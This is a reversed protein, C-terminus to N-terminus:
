KITMSGAVPSFVEAGMPLGNKDYYWEKVDALLQETKEKEVLIMICGGLGAGSLQTGLVGDRTKLYDVLEDITRTSCAYGGPQHWLQAAAVREPDESKLDATLVYLAEDHLAYDYPQGDKYVRDGDHSINMMEGLTAYDQKELLEVCKRARECEAVGYLVVSRIDYFEPPQHSKLIQRIHEHEQQPLLTFLEGPTVREPLELLIEYIRSPLVRMTEPNVDRLYRLRDRYQPFKERILMLGFEYSAVKQNFQDKAGASKKAQVFSNAVVLRCSEPFRVAKEIRFPFFGLHTIMGKQGCKMAAHDGAGGRSGVFWEGEGCLNIFTQPQLDMSNLGIAAEMTAVVISSSSSLGAAMPINGSFMLNMGCLISHRNELQLRLVGAKVYNMWDGKHDLVMRTIAESEIFDVWNTTDYQRIDELISFEREPFAPDTNCLVVRDDSRASAVLLMERNISVVNISGGRHEIHRGMLNVRGPARAILVPEDGYRNLFGNLVNLFAGRREAIMAEDDGYVSVFLRHIEAGDSRIRNIWYTVNHLVPGNQEQPMFYQELRLLEDMTSYTLMKEKEAINVADIKGSEAIRNVADPLYIEGQANDGGLGDLAKALLESDFLYTATNVLGSAELDDADFREGSLTVYASLSGLRPLARRFLGEKKKPDLPLMAVADRLEAETKPARAGVRYLCADAQEVIGFVRGGRAAIRGGGPNFAAPQTAFVAGAGGTEYATVLGTIVDPAIIKDGSIVLVPGSLGMGRMARLGCLAADGTGKQEAQYAYAVGGVGSLCEMVKACKDGVVVLFRSVGAQKLNSILRIIAPVGAIEYCVKHTRNDQMRTGKGACLLICTPSTM